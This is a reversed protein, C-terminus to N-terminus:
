LGERARRLAAEFAHAVMEFEAVQKTHMARLGRNEEELKAIREQLAQITIADRTDSDIM